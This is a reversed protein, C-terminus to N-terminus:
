SRTIAGGTNRPPLLLRPIKIAREIFREWHLREVNQMCSGPREDGPSFNSYGHVPESFGGAM